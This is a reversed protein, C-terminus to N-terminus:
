RLALGAKSLQGVISQLVSQIEDGTLTGGTKSCFIEYSVSKKDAPLPEGRYQNLFSVSKLFQSPIYDSTKEKILKVPTFTSEASDLIV